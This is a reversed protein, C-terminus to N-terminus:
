TQYHIVVIGIICMVSGATGIKISDYESLGKYEETTKNKKAEKAFKKAKDGMIIGTVVLAFAIACWVGLLVLLVLKKNETIHM